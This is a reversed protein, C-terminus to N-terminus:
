YQDILWKLIHNINCPKLYIPLQNIYLDYLLDDVNPPDSKCILDLLIPISIYNDSTAHKYNDIDACLKNTIQNSDNINDIDGINVMLKPNTTHIISIPTIKEFIKFMILIVRFANVPFMVQDYSVLKFMIIFQNKFSNYDPYYNISKLFQVWKSSYKEFVDNSLDIIQDLTLNHDSNILNFKLSNLYSFEGVFLNVLNHYDNLKKKM